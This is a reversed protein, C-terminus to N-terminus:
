QRRITEILSSTSCGDVYGLVVVEGGAERVCDGGAIQEPRYDGGKVLM